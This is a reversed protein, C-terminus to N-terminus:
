CPHVKLASVNLLLKQKLDPLFVMSLSKQKYVKYISIVVRIFVSGAGPWGFSDLPWHRCIKWKPALLPLASSFVEDM